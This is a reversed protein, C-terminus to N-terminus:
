RQVHWPDFPKTWHIGTMLGHAKASRELLNWWSWPEKYPWRDDVIDVAEAAPQGKANVKTHRGVKLRSYGANYAALQDARSRWAEQIRSRLGHGQLDRLIAEVKPRLWPVCELVKAKNRALLDADTM